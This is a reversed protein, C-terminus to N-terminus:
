RSTAQAAHFRSVARSVSQMLAMRSPIPASTEAIMVAIAYRSGDPAELLGVDNYGTSRRGLDQGTGTKHYVKWGAPVGAKLRRPGSHTRRLTDLYIATTEPRLLRGEALAALAETIGRPTAGDIPDAVYASLAKQRAQMAVKARAANFQAPGALETRWEVGAIRSQLPGEGPGFRIEDLGKTRLTRRVEGPGGVLRLLRNNALNDSATIAHHVVRAVPMQIREHRDLLYALPQNFVTLDRREIAIKKQLSVQKRDVQDLVALTVWLKSVSQQPFYRDLQSGIVWPCDTRRVAIGVTGDFRDGIQRLTARLVAPVACRGSSLRPEHRVASGAAPQQSAKVAPAALAAAPIGSFPFALALSLIYCCPLSAIRLAHRVSQM